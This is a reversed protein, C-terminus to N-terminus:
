GGIRIGCRIASRPATPAVDIPEAVVAFLPIRRLGRAVGRATRIERADVVSDLLRPDTALARGRRPDAAEVDARHTLAVPAPAVRSRARLEVRVIRDRAHEGLPVAALRAGRAFLARGIVVGARVLPRVARTGGDERVHTFVGRR